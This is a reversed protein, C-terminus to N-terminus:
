EGGEVDTGPGRPCRKPSGSWPGCCSAGLVPVTPISRLRRSAAQSPVLGSSVDAHAILALWQPEDRPDVAGSRAVSPGTFEM